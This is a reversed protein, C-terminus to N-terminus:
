MLRDDVQGISVRTQTDTAVTISEVVETSCTKTTKNRSKVNLQQLTDSITCVYVKNNIFEGFLFDCPITGLVRM